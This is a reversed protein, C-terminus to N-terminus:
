KMNYYSAKTSMVKDCKPCWGSINEKKIIKGNVDKIMKYRYGEDDPIREDDMNMLSNCHWCEIKDQPQAFANTLENKILVENRKVYDSPRKVQTSSTNGGLNLEHQSQTSSTNVQTLKSNVKFQSQTSSPEVQTTVKHEIIGHKLRLHSGLGQANVIKHCIHCEATNKTTPM